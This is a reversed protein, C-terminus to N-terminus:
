SFIGKQGIFLNVMMGYKRLLYDRDHKLSMKTRVNAVGGLTEGMKGGYQTLQYREDRFVLGDEYMLKLSLEYDDQMIVKEDFRVKKDLLVMCTCYIKGKIAFPRFRSTTMVGRGATLSGCKSGFVKTMYYLEQVADILGAGTLKELKKSFAWDVKKIDDDMMVLYDLDDTFCESMIWNRTKQLGFFDVTVLKINKIELKDIEAQYQEKEDKHIVFHVDVPLNRYVTEKIIWERNKSPIYVKFNAMM